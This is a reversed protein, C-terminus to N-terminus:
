DQISMECTRSPNSYGNWLLLYMSRSNDLGDNYDTYPRETFYCTDFANYVHVRSNDGDVGEADTSARWRGDSNNYHFHFTRHAMQTKLSSDWRTMGLVIECGDYDGCYEEIIVQPIQWTDGGFETGTLTIHYRVPNYTDRTAQEVGNIVRRIEFHNHDSRAATNATGSGAFNVNLTVDGTTGGGGLGTGATVSTIDGVTGCVWNTGSRVVGQGNACSLGGLLDNDGDALGAPVGTLQSWGVSSSGTLYGNNAVFADVQAESLVNDGDAIDSPIGTITNWPTDHELPAFLLSSAALAEDVILNAADESLEAALGCYESFGAFPATAVRYRGLDAGGDIAVAVWVASNEAFLSLPLADDTGLYATFLGGTFTVPLTDSWLVTGAEAANYVTFRVARTGEIPLGAADYLTGQVPLLPPAQAAAVSPVAMCAVVSVASFWSKWSM